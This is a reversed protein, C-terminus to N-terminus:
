SLEDLYYRAAKEMLVTRNFADPLSSGCVTMGHNGMICSWVDDTIASCVGAALEDSGAKAYPCYGSCDGLLAAAEPLTITLAQNAAAFVSCNLSHTHIVGNINEHERYIAAHFGQEVSPALKGEHTMNHYDVRVMDYPTLRSYAMGSPTILMYQDDLRVSLNGWTGQTLNEEVLYNGYDVLEQRLNIEYDPIKRQYDASALSEISKDMKSYRSLYLERYFNCIELSLPKAGGILEGELMAQSSKEVIAVTTSIAALSSGIALVANGYEAHNALLCADQKELVSLIQETNNGDCLKAQLGVIQPLDDLVPLIDCCKAIAQLSHKPKAIIIVDRDSKEAFIKALLPFQASFQEKSAPEPKNGHLAFVCKDPNIRVTVIMDELPYNQKNFSSYLNDFQKELDPIM